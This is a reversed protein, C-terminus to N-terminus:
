GFQPEVSLCVKPSLTLCFSGMGVPSSNKKSCAFTVPVIPLGSRKALRIVGLKVIEKPGKPGDPTVGIDGGGKALGILKRFAMGGGRTTSGRVSHFGFRQILHHILEGDRHYSILVYVKKGRYALPMMLQRGHWFAFIIGQGEQHFQEVHAMGQFSIRMTGGLVRLIGAGLPPLWTRSIWAILRNQINM